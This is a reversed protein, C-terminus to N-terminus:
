SPAISSVGRQDQDLASQLDLPDIPVMETSSTRHSLAPLFIFTAARRYALYSVGELLEEDTDVRYTGPPLVGDVNKLSFPHNFRVMKSSTRTTM